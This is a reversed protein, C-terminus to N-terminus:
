RKSNYIEIAQIKDILSHVAYNYSNGFKNVGQKFETKIKLGDDNVLNSVRTRFGSMYPFDMCSVSGNEILHMLVEERHSKPQNLSYGIASHNKITHTEVEM